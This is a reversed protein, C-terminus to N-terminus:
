SHVKRIYVVVMKNEPEAFVMQGDSNFACNKIYSQNGSSDKINNQFQVVVTTLSKAKAKPGNRTKPLMENQKRISNFTKNQVESTGFTFGEDYFAKLESSQKLTLTVPKSVKIADM